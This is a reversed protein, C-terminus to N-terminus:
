LKDIEITLPIKRNASVLYYAKILSGVQIDKIDKDVRKKGEMMYIGPPSSIDLTVEGTETSLVLEKENISTVSGIAGSSELKATQPEEEKQIPPTSSQPPNSFEKYKLLLITGAIVIIILIIFLFLKTRM